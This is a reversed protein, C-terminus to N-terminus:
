IPQVEEQSRALSPIKSGFIREAFLNDVKTQQKIAKDVGRNQVVFPPSENLYPLIQLPGVLRGSNEIHERQSLMSVTQLDCGGEARARAERSEPIFELTVKIHLVRNIEEKKGM